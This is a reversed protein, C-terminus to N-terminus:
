CRDPPLGYRAPHGIQQEGIAVAGGFEQAKGAARAGDQRPPVHQMLPRDRCGVEILARGRPDGIEGVAEAHVGGLDGGLEGRAVRRQAGVAFELADFQPELVIEVVLKLQNLNEGEEGALRPAIAEDKNLGVIEEAALRRLGNEPEAAVTLRNAVGVEREGGGDPRVEGRRRGFRM